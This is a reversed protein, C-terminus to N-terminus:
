EFHLTISVKSFNTSFFIKLFKGTYTTSIWIWFEILEEPKKKRKQSNNSTSGHTSYCWSFLKDRIRQQQQKPSDAIVCLCLAGFIPPFFLVFVRSHNCFWSLLYFSFDVNKKLITGPDCFLAFKDIVWHLACKKFINKACQSCM